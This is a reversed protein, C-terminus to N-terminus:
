FRDSDPRVNWLRVDIQSVGQGREISPVVGDNGVAGQESRPGVVGFRKDGACIYQRLLMPFALREGVKFRRSGGVRIVVEGKVSQSTDGQMAAVPDLGGGQPAVHWGM